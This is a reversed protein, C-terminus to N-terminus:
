RGRGLPASYTFVLSESGPNRNYIGSNSLHYLTLGLRSGSPLRWALEFGSRFELPGGLTFDDSKRFLGVGVSPSLTWRRGVPLEARLGSYAYLTGKGTAVMGFTPALEPLVRPFIGLHRPAFRVEGGIEVTQNEVFPDFAGASVAVERPPGLRLGPPLATLPGAGVMLGLGGLITWRIVHKM